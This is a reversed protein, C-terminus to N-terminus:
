SHAAPWTGMVQRLIAFEGLHHANHDAVLLIERLITYTPAHPIPATLDTAPDKVMAELDAMDTRFGRLTEDWRARDAKESSAPWYGKPWEPSVYKPDRIFELIDNQGIRIHELLHWPTYPVNPPCTNMDAEPFDAVQRDFPMYANGGRLVALLEERLLTDADM